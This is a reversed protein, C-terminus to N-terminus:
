HKQGLVVMEGGLCNGFSMGVLYAVLNRVRNEVSHEGVVRVAVQGAFHQRGRVKDHQGAFVGDIIGRYVEVPNDALHNRVNAVVTWALAELRGRQLDLVAHM